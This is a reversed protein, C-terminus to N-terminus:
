TLDGAFAKQLLSQRLDSVERVKTRYGQSLSAGMRSLDEVKQLLDARERESPLPIPLSKVESLNLVPQASGGTKEEILKQGIPGRLNLQIWRVLEPEVPLVAVARSINAGSLEAPAIASRGISAGVLNLLIEGGQLRTRAYQKDLEKTIRFDETLDMSDDRVQQSKILRVGQPDHQGPKLVGYGIKRGKICFSELPLSEWRQSNEDLADALVGTLFAEADALNANALARARDLAAFAQDLVAVIRKQEELTPIPVELRQYAGFDLNRIGTSRRQLPETRGDVYWWYLVRHLYRPDLQNQDKVRIASTFNSFSYIGDDIDFLVVRGVPQKPGGGSKEIIIDGKQLCRKALQKAEVELVAVDSLDITGDVTFNTNRIVTATEFPPKKGTWLGNHFTCCDELPLWRRGTAKDAVKAIAM